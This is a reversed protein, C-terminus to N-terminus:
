GSRRRGRCWRCASPARASGARARAPTRSRDRGLRAVALEDVPQAVDVLAEDGLQVVARDEGRAEGDPGRSARRGCSGARRPPPIKAADRGTAIRCAGHDLRLLRDLRSVASVSRRDAPVASQFTGRWRRTRRCGRPPRTPGILAVSQALPSAPNEVERPRTKHAIECSPLRGLDCKPSAAEIAETPPPSRALQPRTLRLGCSGRLPQRQSGLTRQHEVPVGRCSPVAALPCARQQPRTRLVESEGVGCSARTGRHTPGPSTALQRQELRPRATFPAPQAARYRAPPDSALCRVSAGACSIQTATM